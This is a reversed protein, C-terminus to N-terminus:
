VLLHFTDRCRGLDADSHFGPELQQISSPSTFTGTQQDVTSKAFATRRFRWTPMLRQCSFRRPRGHRAEMPRVGFRLQCAGHHQNTVDNDQDKQNPDPGPLGNVQRWQQGGAGACPELTEAMQPNNVQITNHTCRHSTLLTSSVTGTSVSPHIASPESVGSPPYPGSKWSQGGDNSVSFGSLQVQDVLPLPWSQYSTFEASNNYTVVINRGFAAM